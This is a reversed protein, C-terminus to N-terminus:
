LALRGSLVDRALFVNLVTIHNFNNLESKQFKLITIIHNLYSNNNKSVL